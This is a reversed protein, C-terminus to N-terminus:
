RHSFSIWFIGIKTGNKILFNWINLNIHVKYKTVFDKYFRIKRRWFFLDFSFPLTRLLAFLSLFFTKTGGLSQMYQINGGM